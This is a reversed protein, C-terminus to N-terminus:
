AISGGTLFLIGVYLVKCTIHLFQDVNYGILKDCKAIDILYHFSYEVIALVLSGTIVGVFGAHIASHAMMAQWWPVGEVPDHLNKATALFNGQLPYDALFHGFVLLGLIYFYESM